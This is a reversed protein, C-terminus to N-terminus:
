CLGYIRVLCVVMGVGDDRVVCFYGDDYFYGDDGFTETPSICGWVGFVGTM